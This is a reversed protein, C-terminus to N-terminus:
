QVFNKRIDLRFRGEKLKFSNGRTRDGCISSFLGDGEKKCGQKLYQFGGRQDGRQRRKELSFLGLEWGTRMPTSIIGQIMKTARKQIYELDTDRRHEPSMCYEVHPRVLVSCLPLLLQGKIQQAHKKQHLGPYLQSEPSCPYMSPEHWSRM